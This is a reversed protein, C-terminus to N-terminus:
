FKNKKEVDLSQFILTNSQNHAMLNNEIGPPWMPWKERHYPFYMGGGRKTIEKM